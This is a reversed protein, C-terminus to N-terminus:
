EAKLARPDNLSLLQAHGGGIHLSSVSAPAVSLRQFHDLPLGLFHAIALKIPDAHSICAIRARKGRHFAILQNLAQVIRFQAETLSEGEPFQAMSPRIQIRTWLKRRRLSKLSQGQWRGFDIELLGKSPIVKLKQAKAIPQGTEMARELPSSYLATLKINSFLEALREAQAAGASSLHVDPLRGALKGLEVFENHAHRILFLTSM